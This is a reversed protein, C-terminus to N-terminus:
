TIVKKGDYLFPMGDEFKQDCVGIVHKHSDFGHRWNSNKERVMNLYPLAYM